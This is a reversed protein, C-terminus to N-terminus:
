SENGYKNLMETTIYAESDIDHGQFAKPNESLKEFVRKTIDTLLKDKDFEIKAKNLFRKVNYYIVSIAKQATIDTTEM